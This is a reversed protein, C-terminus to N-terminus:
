QESAVANGDLIARLRMNEEVLEAVTVHETAALRHATRLNRVERTAKNAARNAAKVTATLVPGHLARALLVVVVASGALALLAAIGAAAAAALPGDGTAPNVLFVALAALVAVDIAARATTIVKRM